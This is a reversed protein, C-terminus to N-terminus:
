KFKGRNKRFGRKFVNGVRNMMNEMSDDVKEVLGSKKFMYMRHSTSQQEGNKSFKYFEVHGVKNYRIVAEIYNVLLMLMTLSFTIDADISKIPGTNLSLPYGDMILTLKNGSCHSDFFYLRYYYDDEFFENKEHFAKVLTTHIDLTDSCVEEREGCKICQRALNPDSDETTSLVPM